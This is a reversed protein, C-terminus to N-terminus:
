ENNDSQSVAVAYSYSYQPNPDYPAAIKAVAPYAPRYAAIPAPYGVAIAQAAAVIGALIAIQLYVFTIGFYLQNIIRVVIPSKIRVKLAMKTTVRQVLSVSQM